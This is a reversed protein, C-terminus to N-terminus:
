GDFGNSDIVAPLSMLAFEAFHLSKPNTGLVKFLNSELDQIKDIVM